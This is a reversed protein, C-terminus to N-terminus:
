FHPCAPCPHLVGDCQVFGNQGLPCNRDVAMCSSGSCSIMTGTPSTPSWACSATCMAKGTIPHRAALAPTQVPAALATLFAQDAATRAQQIQSGDPAAMAPSAMLGLAALALVLGLVMKKM